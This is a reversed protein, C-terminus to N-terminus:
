LFRIHLNITKLLNYYRIQDKKKALFNLHPVRFYEKENQTIQNPNYYTQDM